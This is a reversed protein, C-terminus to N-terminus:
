PEVPDPPIAPLPLDPYSEPETPLGRDFPSLDDPVVGLPNIDPYIVEPSGTDLTQFTPTHFAGIDGVLDCVDAACWSMRAMEAQRIRESDEPTRIVYPTMIILLESRRGAIGDYRFLHGLIPLDGLLPVQRHAQEKRRTILGGLVITEGSAASVTAQATATDVRPSRVVTGDVSVAVPIGEEEPGIASKEADIEMVVRGDPGIRPTVGIILGVNELVVQNTQGNQNVTSATIRPVRQGVQIFAPQNDLTRIQPRSLIDVRRTEQLARILISVNDSSASLVLGGFGLESNSRGISFNTIGQSGVTDRTSQSRDSGSNGLPQTNNFDFGPINTASQIIEQTTTVVGAPTSVQESNVTTILEGLLSRDFLVSDQLGLEVGFEDTNNLMVEAILVQVVVQPPQEDLKEILRSIEDFYSPTATLILKNAVPEPVVIVEQELNQYPNESGPLARQIRRQNILYQNIAAAIDVAPSNKLHYVVTRRDMSSSQDLKILLAEVIHLDGESGTAIISNSRQDVSFRLPALSSEGPASSIQADSRNGTESPILSRLTDILSVADGNIIRFVKIQVQMAPSDLQRILEAMLDMTEDPGTVILSNNRPNPTIGVRDLTGSRILRQQDVDLTQLELATSRTGSAAAQIAQRLTQAVDAALAHNLPFVQVQDVNGGAARDLDKVLQEVEQMDRPAAYVILANTRADAAVLVKTGLGARNAFFQMLTQRVDVASAHELSFVASQTDAAVPADLEKILAVIAEVTDGWGILLIANPKILPTVSVRGQRGSTLEERTQAIIESVADSPVHELPIIRIEPQTEHSIREIQKIIEALQELDQDRGRLIIVDLEPLSEIEVGEFQGVEVQGDRVVNPDSEENDQFLYRVLAIPGDSDRSPPEAATHQSRYSARSAPPPILRSAHSVPDVLHEIAAHRERRLHFVKTGRETETSRALADILRVMQEAVGDPGGILVGSRMADFEIELVDDPQSPLALVLVDRPGVSQARLRDGFIAAFQTRVRPMRVPPVYVFRGTGVSTPGNRPADVADRRPPASLPASSSRVDDIGEHVSEAATVYVKGTAPETRVRVQDSPFTGLVRKVFDGQASAPVSYVRMSELSASAVDGRADSRSRQDIAASRGGSTPRDIERLVHRVIDQASAPGSVLIRNGSRDVIVEASREPLLPAVLRYVEAADKHKCRYSVFTSSSGDQAGAPIDGSLVLALLILIAFRLRVSRDRERLGTRLPVPLFGM